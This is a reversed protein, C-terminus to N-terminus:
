NFSTCAYKIINVSFLSGGYVFVSCQVGTYTSYRNNSKSLQADPREVSTLARTCTFTALDLDIQHIILSYGHYRNDCPQIWPFPQWLASGMTVTTAQCYRHFRSDCPQIWPLPQRRVTDMSVATMLSYGHYRNDGSQIWPLPQWLASDM